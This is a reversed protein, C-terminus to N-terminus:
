GADEKRLLRRIRQRLIEAKRLDGQYQAMLYLQELADQHGPELYIVKDMYAETQRDNGVAHYIMGMLFHAAASFPNEELCIRCQKFAEDLEGRDALIRAKKLRDEPEYVSESEARPLTEEKKPSSGQLPIRQRVSEGSAADTEKAGSPPYRQKRRKQECSAAQESFQASIAHEPKKWAFSRPCPLRVFGPNRFMGQEAHGLFVIGGPNLLRDINRVAISKASASLYILLNRCFVVHYPETDRLLEEDLLNGRLFSINKRLSDRVQFRKGITSFYIHRHAYGEKRFSEEGYIGSKGSEVARRSVDVADIHYGSEPIGAEALTIALSWVEEGTSCPISLIRLIANQEANGHWAQVYEGFCDFAAENRFFWTEPIVTLEVLEDIEGPHAHIYDLYKGMVSIGCAEMRKQIAKDITEPGAAAESIGIEKELLFSIIKRPIM